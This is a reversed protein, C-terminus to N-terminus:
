LKRWDRTIQGEEDIETVELRGARPDIRNEEFGMIRIGAFLKQDLLNIPEKAYKGVTYTQITPEKFEIM